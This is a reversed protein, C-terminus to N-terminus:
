IFKVLFRSRKLPFNIVFLLKEEKNKYSIINIILKKPRERQSYKNGFQICRQHFGHDSLIDDTNESYSPTKGIKKPKTNAQFM